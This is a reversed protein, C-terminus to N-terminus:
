HLCYVIEKIFADHFEDNETELNRLFSEAVEAVTSQGEAFETASRESRQVIKLDNREKTSMRKKHRINPQVTQWEPEDMSSKNENIHVSVYSLTDDSSEEITAVVKHEAPILTRRSPSYKALYEQEKVWPGDKCKRLGVKHM